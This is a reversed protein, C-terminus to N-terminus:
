AICERLQEIVGVRKDHQRIAIDAREEIDTIEGTEAVEVESVVTIRNLPVFEALERRADALL